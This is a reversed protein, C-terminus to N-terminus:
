EDIVGDETSLGDAKPKDEILPEAFMQIKTGLVSEVGYEMVRRVVTKGEFVVHEAVKAKNLGNKECYKGFDVLNTLRRAENKIDYNVRKPDGYTRNAAEHLCMRKTETNQLASPLNNFMRRAATLAVWVPASPSRRSKNDNKDNRDKKDQQRKASATSDTAAIPATVQNNAAVEAASNIANSAM